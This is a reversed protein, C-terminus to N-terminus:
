HGEPEIHVVVDELPDFHQILVHEARTALTHAQEVSLSPDVHISIDMFVHHSMGRTRIRHCDLVGSLTM